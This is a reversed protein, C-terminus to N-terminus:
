WYDDDVGSGDDYQDYDDYSDYEDDLLLQRRRSDIRWVFLGLLGVVVALGAGSLALIAPSLGGSGPQEIRAMQEAAPDFTFFFGGTTFDSDFSVMEYGVQYRGPEALPQDLAFTIVEGADVTTRGAVPAGNFTVTVSAESVPDLFLLDIFAISGGAVADRDPSAQLMATHASAPVALVVAVALGVLTTSLVVMLPTSN